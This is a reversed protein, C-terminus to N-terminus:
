AQRGEKKGQKIRGKRGREGRFREERSVDMAEDAEWTAANGTFYGSQFLKGTHPVPQLVSVFDLGEETTGHTLFVTTQCRGEEQSYGKVKSHKQKVM